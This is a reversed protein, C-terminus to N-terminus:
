GLYVLETEEPLDIRSKITLTPSIAPLETGIKEAMITHDNLPVVYLPAIKTVLDYSKGSVLLVDARELESLVDSPYSESPNPIYAIVIHDLEIIITPFPAFSFISIGGVEYEGPSSILFTGQKGTAPTLVVQQPDLEVGGVKASLSVTGKNSLKITM